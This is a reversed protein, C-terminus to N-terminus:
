NNSACEGHKGCAPARSRRCPLGNSSVVLVEPEDGDEGDECPSITLAKDDPAAARVGDAGGVGDGAGVGSALVVDGATGGM